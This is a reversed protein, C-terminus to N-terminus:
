KKSNKTLFELLNKLEEPTLPQMGSKEMLRQKTELLRPWQEPKLVDPDPLQHCVGCRAKFLSEGSEPEAAPITTAALAIFLLPFLIRKM